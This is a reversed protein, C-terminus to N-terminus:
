SLIVFELPNQLTVLDELDFHYIIFITNAM